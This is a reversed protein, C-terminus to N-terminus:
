IGKNILEGNLTLTKKGGVGNGVLNLQNFTLTRKDAALTIGQCAPTGLTSQATEFCSYLLSSLGSSASVQIIRSGNLTVTLGSLGTASAQTGVTTFHYILEEDRSSIEGTAPVFDGETSSSLKGTTAGLSISNKLTKSAVPSSLSSVVAGNFAIVISAPNISLALKGADCNNCNFLTALTSFGQDLYQLITPAPLPSNSTHNIAYTGQATHLDISRVTYLAGNPIKTDSVGVHSSIVAESQGNVDITGDTSRPLDAVQWAAPNTMSASLSGNLTGGEGLASYSFGNLKALKTDSFTIKVTKQRGDSEVIVGACDRTSFCLLPSTGLKQSDSYTVKIVKNQVNTEVVLDASYNIAGQPM